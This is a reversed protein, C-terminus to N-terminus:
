WTVEVRVLGRTLPALHAFVDDDLDILREARTGRYCQCWDTLRVVACRGAACVRVRTGRWHPGLVHRLAPGAAARGDPARFWSATGALPAAALASLAVAVALIPEAVPLM